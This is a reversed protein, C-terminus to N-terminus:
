PQGGVNDPDPTAVGGVVPFANFHIQVPRSEPEDLGRLPAVTEEFWKEWSQVVAALQEKTLRLNATALTGALVWDMGFEDLGRESFNQLQTTRTQEWERMVVASAARGAESEVIGEPTLSIGGPMREWWRERGTGRGPVERVFGHRELQRLHYSTAGSSEGLREALGSATFAGHVSLEELLQVRLPHALVKLSELDLKRQQDDTM